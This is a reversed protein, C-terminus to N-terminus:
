PETSISSHPRFGLCAPSGIRTPSGFIVLGTLRVELHHPISPHAPLAHLLRDLDPATVGALQEILAAEGATHGGTLFNMARELLALQRGDHRRAAERIRPQLLNMVHRTGKTPPGTIWQRGQALALRSRILGSLRSLWVSLQDSGPQRVVQDRAAIAIRTELIDPDETWTGNEELWIVTVAEHYPQDKTYLTFGALLGKTECNVVAVGPGAAQTQFREAVESRWRWLHRGGSGLGVASPLEVKHALTAEIRLRRELSQPLRFQVIEVQQNSSGYRVSRGERQELRMPTWPLDYHIVRVARPLDLGEAAVDTVVLHTPAHTSDTRRRFWNLVVQRSLHGCGIGAREGTCWAVNLDSLCERIYRVTDRSASFVLTPKADALLGRLRGLKGDGGARAAAHAIIDDLRAVDCLAIDTKQASCPLLQWLMLQDDLAGTFRRLAARDLAHGAQQADRAHLLLRRYRRLTGVYAAPSSAIARLFVGRILSAVPRSSSLRLQNLEAMASSVAANEAWTARSDIHIRRPRQLQDCDHEFVLQGLAPTSRGAALMASISVVGDLALANDRITLLLQHSLDTPRNVIPTASILLAARGALWPAINQYRRTHPNRFHHSEDILVLGHPGRPLRGRSIEEHSFLTVPVSVRDATARWQSRLAAPVLCATPGRNIAAAAALAVYTKGSGVPDALLAGGFRHIAAVVRRYSRVQQPLVWAPPEGPHQPPSLSHALSGAVAAGPAPDGPRLTTLLVDPVGILSEAVIAPVSTWHQAFPM